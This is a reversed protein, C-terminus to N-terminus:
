PLTVFLHVYPAPQPLPGATMKLSGDADNIRFVVLSSSEQNGAILWTGGPDITFHRPTKGLTPANQMLHPAGTAQDIAFVAITEHVRQGAYVWKGNPTVRIESQWKRSTSAYDTPLGSVAPGVQKLTGDDNVAFTVVTAAYENSLYVWRGNPHFDLHRAGALVMGNMMTPANAKDDAVTAPNLPTLLGTKDDFSLQSVTDSDINPVYVYRNNASVRIQHARIGTMLRQVPQGLTGDAQIPYVIISHGQLHGLNNALLLFKGTKDISVYTPRDGFSSIRAIETLAGTTQDISFTAMFGELAQGAMQQQAENITRLVSYLFKGDASRALYTAALPYTLSGKMELTGEPEQLRYWTINGEGGVYLMTRGQNGGSSGCGTMGAAAMAIAFALVGIKQFSSRGNM